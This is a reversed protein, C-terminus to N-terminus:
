RLMEELAQEWYEKPINHWDCTEGADECLQMAKKLVSGHSVEGTLILHKTVESWYPGKEALGSEDMEKVVKEKDYDISIFEHKWERKEQRLIMFQAKGGSELAVGVAGPNLVIKDDHEIMGQRHSHGCLIYKCSCEEIMRKTEEDDPLMKKNNQEPTGHCALIPSAGDLAIEQCISLSEYFEIDRDTQNEFCYHMAGVTLDGNKWVCNENYKRDIWYDEKNGRVFFCNYKEKMFYMRELTKQPYAFEAVYDGLFIYTDIGRAIAYDLCKEFAVHNGHIDSLVAIEM